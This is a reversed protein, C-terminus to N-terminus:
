TYSHSFTELRELGELAQNYTVNGFSIRVYDEWGEGFAGGPLMLVAQEKILSQIFEETTKGAPLNLKPFIYFAAQGSPSNKPFDFLSNESVRSIILKRVKDIEIVQKQVWKIADPWRLCAEALEQSARAASIVTTDQIKQFAEHIYSPYIMYGIRWGAMGFAKSFSRIVILHDFTEPKLTGFSFFAGTKNPEYIFEAYTEDAVLWINPFDHLIDILIAMESQSLLVGTPNSPYVIIIVKTRPSLSKRLIDFDIRLSKHNVPIRIIKLDELEADMEHNFYFPTFIVIEDNPMCLAKIVSFCAQNAGPTVMVQTNCDLKPLHYHLHEFDAIIERLSQDGQDLGYRHVTHNPDKWEDMVKNLIVAPPGYFAVGQGFSILTKDKPALVASQRAIKVIPPFMVNQLRKSSM